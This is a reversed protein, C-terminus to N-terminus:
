VTVLGFPGRALSAAAEDLDFRVVCRKGPRISGLEPGKQAERAGLSHKLM